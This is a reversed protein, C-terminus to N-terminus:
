FNCVAFLALSLLTPLHFYIDCTQAMLSQLIIIAKTLYVPTSLAESIIYQLHSLLCSFQSLLIYLYIIDCTQVMLAKCHSSKCHSGLCSINMCEGCLTAQSGAIGRTMICLVPLSKEASPISISTSMAESIIYQLHSLLIPFTSHIINCIQM